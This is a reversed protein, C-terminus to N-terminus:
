FGEMPQSIRQGCGIDRAVMICNIIIHIFRRNDFNKVGVIRIVIVTKIPGTDTHTPFWFSERYQTDLYKEMLTILSMRIQFLHTVFPLNWEVLPLPIVVRGLELTTLQRTLDSGAAALSM